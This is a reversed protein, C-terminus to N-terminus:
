AGAYLAAHDQEYRTVFDEFSDTCKLVADVGPSRPHGLILFVSTDTSSVRLAYVISSVLWDAFPLLPGEGGSSFREWDGAEKRIRAMSWFSIENHVWPEYGDVIALYDRFDAPLIIGLDREFASLAAVSAGPDVKGHASFARRLREGPGRAM